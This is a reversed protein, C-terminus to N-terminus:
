LLTTTTTTHVLISSKRNRRMPASACPARPHKAICEIYTCVYVNICKHKNICQVCVLRYMYIGVHPRPAALSAPLTVCCLGDSIHILDFTSHQISFACVIKWEIHARFRTHSLSFHQHTGPTRPHHPTIAISNILNNMEASRKCVYTGPFCRGNYMM